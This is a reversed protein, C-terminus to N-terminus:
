KKGGKKQARSIAFGGLFVAILGLGGLVWYAWVPLGSSSKNIVKENGTLTIKEGSGVTVPITVDPTTTGTTPTTGAASGTGGTTNGTTTGSSTTTGSTPAPDKFEVYTSPVYGLKREFNPPFFPLSPLQQLYVLEVWDFDVGTGPFSLGTAQGLSEGVRSAGYVIKEVGSGKYSEFVAADTTIAIVLQLPKVNVSM